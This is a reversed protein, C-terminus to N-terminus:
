NNASRRAEMEAKTPRGTKATEMSMDFQGVFNYFIDIQQHRRKDQRYPAHVVVKEVFMRLVEPTLEEPETYSRVLKLFSKVNVKQQECAEISAQLETTSIQLQKQEKEYTDYMKSFREDPLKGTVNDEYLRQIITDIEGIRRTQQEFQRKVAAQQKIQETLANDTVQRIFEDEYDRAYSIVTRLNELVLNNLVEERIYHSECKREGRMNRYRSCVYRNIGTEDAHSRCLTLASGCDNCFIMGSFLATKGTRTRRHRHERIKQVIDWLEFDIIAEHTNEFVVQKEEPNFIVRKNKFSKRTTKFNVTHGLYEKLALMNAITQPQWGYPDDPYYRRTRGTRLFELTGPTNIKREKLIRAIQSPGHGEACLQFIMKVVPATEEDVVLKKNEGLLYGYPVCSSIREGAMGKARFVARIKKSTDKAYWENIINRFPAFDSDDRDSDVGDNIAIFRINKEPFMIETYMGVELYNRGFRSMDKVVITSIHGDEIDALMEKFGPRNFNTGSYGDDVYFKYHTIGHDIAYKELIQKQHQISNSDGENDDDRSLRCYFATWVELLCPATIEQFQRYM